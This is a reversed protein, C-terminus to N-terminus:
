LMYYVTFIQHVNVYETYQRCKQLFADPSIQNTTSIWSVQFSDLFSQILSALGVPQQVWSKPIGNSRTCMLASFLRAARNWVTVVDEPMLMIAPLSYFKMFTAIKGIKLTRPEDVAKIPWDKRNLPPASRIITRAHILADANSPHHINYPHGKETPDFTAIMLSFAVGKGLNHM